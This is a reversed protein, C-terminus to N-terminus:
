ETVARIERIESKIGNLNEAVLLVRGIQAAYLGCARKNDKHFARCIQVRMYVSHQKWDVHGRYNAFRRMALNTGSCRLGEDIM